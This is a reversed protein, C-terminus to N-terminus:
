VAAKVEGLAREFGEVQAAEGGGRLNFDAGYGVRAEAVAAGEEGEVLVVDAFIGRFGEIGGVAAQEPQLPEVIETRVRAERSGCGGGSCRWAYCCCQSCGYVFVADVAAEGGACFGVVARKVFGAADAEAPAEGRQGGVAADRERRREREVWQHAIEAGRVRHLRALVQRQATAELKVRIAVLAFEHKSALEPSPTEP